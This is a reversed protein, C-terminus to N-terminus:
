CNSIVGFLLLRLFYSDKVFKKFITIIIKPCWERRLIYHVPHSCILGQLSGHLWKGTLLTLFPMEASFPWYARAGTMCSTIGFHPEMFPWNSPFLHTPKLPYDSMAQLESYCLPYGYITKGSTLFFITIIKFNLQYLILDCCKM